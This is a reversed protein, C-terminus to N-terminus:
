QILGGVRHRFLTVTFTLRSTARRVHQWGDVECGVSLADLPTAHAGIAGSAKVKRHDRAFRALREEAAICLAGNVCHAIM